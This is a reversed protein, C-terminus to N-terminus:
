TCQSVMLSFVPQYDMQSVQRLELLKLKHIDKADFPYDGKLGGADEVYAIFVRRIVQVLTERTWPHGNGRCERAYTKMGPWSIALSFVQPLTVPKGSDKIDPNRLHVGALTISSKNSTSREFHVINGLYNVPALIQQAVVTGLVQVTQAHSPASKPYRCCFSQQVDVLSHVAM